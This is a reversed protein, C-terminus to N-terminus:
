YGGSESIQEDEVPRLRPYVISVIILAAGAAMLGIGFTQLPALLDNIFGTLWM